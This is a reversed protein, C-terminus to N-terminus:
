LERLADARMTLADAASTDVAAVWLHSTSPRAAAVATGTRAAAEVAALLGPPYRTLGVAELDLAIQDEVPLDRGGRGRGSGFRDALYRPLGVTTVAVSRAEQAPDQLRVLVDAVLGELAMRDLSDVAGRTVVVTADPSTATGVAMANVTADDSVRLAPTAIGATLALGEVVNVLRADRDADAPAAEVLALIASNARTIALWAVLAGLVLGIVIAPWGVVFILALTVVVAVVTGPIAALAITSPGTATAPAALTDAPM